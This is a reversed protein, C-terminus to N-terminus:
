VGKLRLLRNVDIRRSAILRLTLGTKLMSCCYAHGHTYASTTPLSTDFFDVCKPGTKSLFLEYLGRYYLQKKTCSLKQQLLLASDASRLLHGWLPM